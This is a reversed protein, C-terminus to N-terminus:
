TLLGGQEVIAAELDSPVPEEKQILVARIYTLENLSREIYPRPTPLDALKFPIPHNM